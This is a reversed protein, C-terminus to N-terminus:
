LLWAATDDLWELPVNAGVGPRALVAKTYAQLKPWRAATWAPDVKVFYPLWAMYVAIAV